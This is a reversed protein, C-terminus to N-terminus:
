RGMQDKGDATFDQQLNFYTKMLREYVLDHVQRRLFGPIYFPKDLPNPCTVSVEQCDLGAPIDEEPYFLITVKEMDQSTIYLHNDVIWCCDPICALGLKLLNAYRSPSSYKFTISSDISFVGQILLGFLGEAIRPLKFRSKRITCKGKYSCCESLSAPVMELCSIRTFLNPSQWLRRKDTQQKILLLVSSRIEFALARSSIRNDASFLKNM